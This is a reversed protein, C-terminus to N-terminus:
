ENCVITILSIAVENRAPLWCFGAFDVTLFKPNEETEIWPGVLKRVKGLGHDTMADDDFWKGGEM